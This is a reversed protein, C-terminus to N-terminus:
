GSSAGGSCSDCSNAREEISPTSDIALLVTPVGVLHDQHTVVFEQDILPTATRSNPLSVGDNKMDDFAAVATQRGGHVRASDRTRACLCKGNLISRKTYVDRLASVITDSLVALLKRACNRAPRPTSVPWAKRSMREDGLYSNIYLKGNAIVTSQGPTQQGFPRAPRSRRPCDPERRLAM